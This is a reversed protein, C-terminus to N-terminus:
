GGMGLSQQGPADFMGLARYVQRRKYHQGRLPPIARDVFDVVLADTKGPAPRQIRGIKQELQAENRGGAVLFLRDLRPLDLGEEAIKVAFLVDLEGANMAALYGRRQEAPTEGHVVAARLEPALEYLMERLVECHEVRGTLVLSAHGPAEEAIVECILRNRDPDALIENILTGFNVVPERPVRKGKAELQKAKEKHKRLREQHERWVKSETGTEVARLRPTILAGALDQQTRKIEYVTPGLVRETIIELGNGRALTATVGFRHRAPLQNLVDIWTAASSTHHCEDLLVLGFRDAIRSIDMKALTQIIGITLRPGVERAGDGILGIELPDLSLVQLARARVQAALDKTHTLWLAPQGIRAILELGISTKGSGAPAVLVGGTAEVMAEVAPVQYDRLEIRSGFDVPSLLVRRDERTWRVKYKHLLEVLRRGYGRPVSYVGSATDVEWLNLERPVSWHRGLRKAVPYAPNPIVMDMRIDDLLPHSPAFLESVKIRIKSDVIIHLKM